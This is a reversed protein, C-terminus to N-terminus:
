AREAGGFRKTFGSGYLATPAQPWHPALIKHVFISATPPFLIEGWREHTPHDSDFRRTSSSGTLGVSIEARAYVSNGAEEAGAAV